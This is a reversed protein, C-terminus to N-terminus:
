EEKVLVIKATIEGLPCVGNDLFVTSVVESSLCTMELNNKVYDLLARRIDSESFVVTVNTTTKIETEM